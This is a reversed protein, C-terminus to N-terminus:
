KVEIIAGMKVDVKYSDYLWLDGEFTDTNDLGTKIEVSNSQIIRDLKEGSVKIFEINQFPTTTREDPGLTAAGITFPEGEFLSDLVVGNANKFYAQVWMDTPFDNSIITKFTAERIEELDSFSAESEQKLVFENISGLLPIEVAVKVSFFSTSDVFNIITTDQDPNALADIDYAVNVVKDQFLDRINSNDKNFSFGSTKTVGVENVSPYEFDIGKDIFESELEFTGNNLTNLRVYNVKSRVPFGMSNEVSINMKPDDFSLGGSEWSEFLGIGIDSGQIDFVQYAFYGEVYDFVLQDVRMAVYDFEVKDGFENYAEYVFQISNNDPIIEWGKLSILETFINQNDDDITFNYVASWTEGNKDTQPLSVKVVYNGKEESKFNFFINTDGFNAKSIKYKQISPCHFLCTPTM